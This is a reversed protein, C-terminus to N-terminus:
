SRKISNARWQTRPALEAMKIAWSLKRTKTKARGEEGLVTNKLRKQYSPDGLCLSEQVRGKSIRVGWTQTPGLFAPLDQTVRTLSPFHQWGKTWAPVSTLRSHHHPHTHMRDKGEKWSKGKSHKELRLPSLNRWKQFSCLNLAWLRPAEERDTPPPVLELEPSSVWLFGRWELHWM